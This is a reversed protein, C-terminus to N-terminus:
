LCCVESFGCITRKELTEITDTLKMISERSSDSAQPPGASPPAAPADKKRGFLHMKTEACTTRSTCLGRAVVGADSLLSTSPVKTKPLPATIVELPQVTQIQYETKGVASNGGGIRAM